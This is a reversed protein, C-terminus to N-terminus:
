NLFRSVLFGSGVKIVDCLYKQKMSSVFDEMYSHSLINDAVIVCNQSLLKKSELKEIIELYKKHAADLFVFDFQNTFTRSNLIEFIEGNIPKIKEIIEAKKFNDLAEEYRNKDVEVTTIRQSSDTFGRAICLTSFGNSTGIELVNTPKAVEVLNSLVIGSSWTINWYKSHDKTDQLFELRKVILNSNDLM